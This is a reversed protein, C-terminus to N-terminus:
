RALEVLPPLARRVALLNLGAGTLLGLVCALAVVWRWPPPMSTARLTTM